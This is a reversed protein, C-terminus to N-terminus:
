DVPEMEGSNNYLIGIIATFKGGNRKRTLRWVTKTFLTADLGTYAAKKIWFLTAISQRTHYTWIRMADWNMLVTRSNVSIGTLACGLKPLIKACLAKSNTKILLKSSSLTKSRNIAVSTSFKTKDKLPSKHLLKISPIFTRISKSKPQWISKFLSNIILMFMYYFFYFTIGILYSWLQSLHGVQMWFIKPKRQFTQSSNRATVSKRFPLFKPRIM